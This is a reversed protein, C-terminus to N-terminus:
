KKPTVGSGVRDEPTRGDEGAFAGEPADFGMGVTVRDLDWRRLVREDFVLTYRLADRSVEDTVAYTWIESRSSWVRRDPLGWSALVELVNMGKELEGKRIRDNHPGNPHDQLYQDRMSLLVDTEKPARPVHTCGTWVITLTLLCLTRASTRM